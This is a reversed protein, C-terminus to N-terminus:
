VREAHRDVAHRPPVRVPGQREDGASAASQGGGPQEREGDVEGVNGADSEVMRQGPLFLVKIQVDGGPVVDGAHVAGRLAEILDESGSAGSGGAIETRGRRGGQVERELHSERGSGAIEVEACAITM